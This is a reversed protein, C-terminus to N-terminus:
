TWIFSWYIVEFLNVYFQKILFNQINFNGNVRNNCRQVFRRYVIPELPELLEYRPMRPVWLFKWLYKKEIRLLSQFCVNEVTSVVKKQLDNFGLALSGVSKRLVSRDRKKQTQPEM